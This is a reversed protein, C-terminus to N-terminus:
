FSAEYGGLIPHWHNYRHSFIICVYKTSISLVRYNFGGCVAESRLFVWFTPTLSFVIAMVFVVLVTVPETTNAAIIALTVMPPIILALSIHTDNFARIAINTSGFVKIGYRSWLLSNIGHQLVALISQAVLRLVVLLCYTLLLKNRRDNKIPGILCSAQRTTRDGIYVIWRAM